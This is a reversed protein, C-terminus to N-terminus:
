FNTVKSILLNELSNILSLAQEIEKKEAIGETNVKKSIQNINSGIRRLHLCTENLQSELDKSLFRNQHIQCLILEKVFVSPRMKAKESAEKIEELEEKNLTLHVRKRTKEYKRKSDAQAFNTNLIKDIAKKM